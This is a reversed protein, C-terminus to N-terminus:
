GRVPGCAMGEGCVRARGRAFCWCAADWGGCKVGVGVVRCLTRGRCCWACCVHRFLLWLASALNGCGVLGCWVCVWGVAGPSCTRTSSLSGSALKHSVRFRFLVSCLLTQQGGSSQFLKFSSRSESGTPVRRPWLCQQSHGRGCPAEHGDQRKGYRPIREKREYEADHQDREGQPVGGQHM